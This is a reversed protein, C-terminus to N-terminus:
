VVCVADYASATSLNPGTQNAFAPRALTPQGPQYRPWGGDYSLLGKEPDSAFAAWAGRIYRGIATQEETNRVLGQPATDFLVPIDSTHWSGSPPKTTLVLNPFDGFWRYRWTPNGAALSRLVRGAAPCAFAGANLGQWVQEPQDPSSVRYLGAENNANGILYGGSAPKRAAYDSFVRVGDVIPGFTLGNTSLGPPDEAEAGALMESAPKSKMCEYVAEEDDEAGGCGLRTAVNFWTGAARTANGSTFAGATGSILGFGSAIPDSAWGYSVHDVLAAGASQGFLTIRTEDGGFGRINDRVWELAKRVDLLGLNPESIPNGPFGFLNLRYNVSVVVVDEQDALFKGNYAPVSSSGSAFSGGHVWVLVPKVKNGKQRNTWVNLTLCDESQPGPSSLAQLVLGASAPIGLRIITDISAGATRPQFCSFGFNSGNIVSDGQFAVPPQFRLDGVPPQAYPIGLYESVLPADFAPHGQVLGSDTKVPRGVGCVGPPTLPGATVSKAQRLINRLM